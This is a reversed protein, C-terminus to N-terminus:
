FAFGLALSFTGLGQTVKTSRSIEQGTPGYLVTRNRYLDLNGEVAVRGTRGIRREVGYGTTFTGTAYDQADSFDFLLGGLGTVLYPRTRGALVDFRALARLTYENADGTGAKRSTSSAGFDTMLTIRPAVELGLRLGVSADDKLGLQSNFIRWGGLVSVTASRSEDGTDARALSGSLLLALALVPMWLLRLVVFPFSRVRLLQVPNRWVLPQKQLPQTPKHPTGSGHVM